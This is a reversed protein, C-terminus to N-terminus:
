STKVEPFRAALWRQLASADGTSAITAAEDSALEHLASRRRAPDSIADIIRPRLSQTAESLKAWREDLSAAIEDRVKAALAPAATASVTITLNGRRLVAPVVFDGPEAEDTDARNAFIGAAHADRVVQANVEPANTAAFVLEATTLDTANYSKALHSVGAPMAATLKPAVVIVEKAGAAILGAAKRAAVAGGGIIVVVRDSLDL